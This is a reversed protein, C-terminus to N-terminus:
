QEMTRGRKDLERRRKKMIWNNKPKQKTRWTEEKEEKEEKENTQKKTLQEM